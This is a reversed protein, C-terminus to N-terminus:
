KFRSAKFGPVAKKWSSKGIIPLAFKTVSRRKSTDMYRFVRYAYKKTDKTEMTGTKRTWLGLALGQNLETLNDVHRQLIFADIMDNFEAIYYAYAIAAAQTQEVTRGYKYSTFGQESLIIRTKKGFKKKVYNTLVTINAMNVYASNSNNSVNNTWFEPATLPTPYAHYAINFNGYNNWYAAFRNLFQKSGHGTGTLTNWNHDLSIYLRAKSYVSRIAIYALRFARTYIKANMSLSNTGTYHYTGYNNVENGIIWNDIRGDAAYRNALFSFTAELETRAQKTATNLAYYGSQYTANPLLYTLDSRYRMLIIASVVMNNKKYANLTSDYSQVVSKNFWFTQGMYRYSIGYTSNSQASTAILDDLCMNYTTHKVGLTVADSIYNDNVQLGKKTSSTQFAQTATALREPNSIFQKGSVLKYKGSDLKVGIVYKNYLRCSPSNRKLDVNFTIIRSKRKKAIPKTRSTIKSQAMSLNFLYYYNDASKVIGSCRARVRVNKKSTLKVWKMNLADSRANVLAIGNKIKLHVKKSFAGYVRKGGKLKYARVRVYYTYGTYRKKLSRTTKTTYIKRYGNKFSRSTSLQIQYGAAGSVKSYKIRLVGKRPNSLKVSSPRGLSVAALSFDGGAEEEEEAEEVQESEEESITEPIEEDSETEQTQAEEEANAWIVTVTDDCELQRLKENCSLDLVEIQNERCYLGRLQALEEVALSQLQNVSVDLLLLNKFCSIGTLDTIRRERLYLSTVKEQEKASLIGDADTDVEESLFLRFNEDPFQEEDLAVDEFEGCSVVSIFSFTWPIEEEDETEEQEPDTEELADSPQEDALIETIEEIEQTEEEVLYTNKYYLLTEIEEYPEIEEWTLHNWSCDLMNLNPFVSLGELSYLGLCSLDLTEVAELEEGSLIGDQDTDAIEAIKARLHKDPFTKKNIRVSQRSPEEEEEQEEEADSEEEIGEVDEFLSSTEEGDSEEPQAEEDQATQSSLDEEEQGDASQVEEGEAETEEVDEGAVASATLTGFSGTELVLAIALFIALSRVIWKGEFKKM